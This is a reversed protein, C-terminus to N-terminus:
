TAGSALKLAFAGASLLIVSFGAVRLYWPSWGLARSSRKLDSIDSIGLSGLALDLLGAGFLVGWVSFWPGQFMPTMIFGIAGVLDLGRPALLIGAEERPSAARSLVYEASGWLLTGDRVQPWPRIRWNTVGVLRKAAYIHSLEHLVSWLFYAPLALGVAVWVQTWSM